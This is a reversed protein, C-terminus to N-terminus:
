IREFQHPVNSYLELFDVQNIQNSTSEMYPFLIPQGIDRLECADINFAIDMSDLYIQLIIIVM